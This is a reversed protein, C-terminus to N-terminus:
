ISRVVLNEGLVGGVRSCQSGGDPGGQEMFEAVCDANAVASIVARDHVGLQGVPGRYSGCVLRRKGVRAAPAASCGVGASSTPNQFGKRGTWQGSESSLTSPTM